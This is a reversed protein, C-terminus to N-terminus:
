CGGCGHRMEMLAAQLEGARPPYNLVDPNRAYIAILREPLDFPRADEGPAVVRKRSRCDILSQVYELRRRGADTLPGPISPFRPDGMPAIRGSSGVAHADTM